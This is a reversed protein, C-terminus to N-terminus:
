ACVAQRYCRSYSGFENRLQGALEMETLLPALVLLELGTRALLADMSLTDDALADLICRAQPSLQPSPEAPELLSLRGHLAMQLGQLAAPLAEVVDQPETILTAGERLLRHCGRAMPNLLSGPLAFVERGSEAALRATILAGSREAAEVVLTGLALGAVIRNRSPFNQRLPPTGPPFESILAGRGSIEAQLTRHSSPYVIDLGCGQVALTLGNQCALAGQHAAADIGAALGSVIAFGAEALQRAFQWALEVGAHSAKRSGVIAIQPQWLHGPEGAIFLALPPSAIERLLAPYDADFYGILHHGPESLWARARMIAASEQSDPRALLRIQANCLGHERWVEIGAALAAQADGDFAALLQRRPRIRGGALTLQLLADNASQWEM